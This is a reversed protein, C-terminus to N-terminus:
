GQVQITVDYRKIISSDGEWSRWYKLQLQVTGPHQATFTFVTTGGSGVLGGPSPTYTERQLALITTDTKDITWSYGTTPNASLQILIQDGTHAQITKGADAETLTLQRPQTLMVIGISIGVVLLVVVALTIMLIRRKKRKEPPQEPPQPNTLMEPDTNPSHLSSHHKEEGTNSHLTNM